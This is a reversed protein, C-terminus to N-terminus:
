ETKKIESWTAALKGLLEVPATFTLDKEIEKETLARNYIAIEDIVGQAGNRSPVYKIVELGFRPNPNLEPKVGLKNPSTAIEKGDIYLFASGGGFEWTAAVHFWKGASIVGDPDFEIDQWDADSADEFYFGFFDPVIDAHDAGKSIFFYITGEEAIVNPIEIFDDKGYMFSIIVLSLLLIRM